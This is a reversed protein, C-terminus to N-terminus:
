GEPVEFEGPAGIATARRGGRNLAMAERYVAASDDACIVVMDGPRAARMGVRAAELENLVAEAAKCRAGANRADRIGVLVNEAAEGAPRGRLNADERVYIVDFSRAAMAGYERQDEKRRDGPVGIVGIM